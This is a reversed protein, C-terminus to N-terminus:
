WKEVGVPRAGARGRRRRLLVQFPMGEGLREPGADCLLEGHRVMVLRPIDRLHFGTLSLQQAQPIGFSLRLSRKRSGALAGSGPVAPL